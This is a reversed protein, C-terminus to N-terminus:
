NAIMADKIIIQPEFSEKFNDRKITCALELKFNNHNLLYEGLKTDICNFCIGRLNINFDNKFFILVHKDKLIKTHDIIIDNIIFQPEENGNGCPELKEINELLEKNVENISLKSDFYEIKNFISNDYDKFSKTLFAQFDFLLKKNIKLGAAMKHGGGNLLLGEHKALLIMSGIDINNISRASGVGISNNFSIAITPKYYKNILRSAIIGLVGNHWDNGSVLIFKQNYQQDAQIIAKEFISKEILKRKENLLILKRSISEIESIDSSILIKSPLRSDDIRSAANLQPGIIYALDNSTPANYLKSNDLIQTIANQNRQKILELGKSVFARNYNNLKVVDCVTGLAVLDLFSLLNPEKQPTLFFNQERLRKRLAMLFLFTVGVAAMENYTSSEDHRNPNIIAFVDPLLSESIHHDIVIIDMNKYKKDDLIGFSTTGCDLSFVLDIQENLFEDMIRKNPGYGETLRNPIKLSIKINFFSLFRFLIAAATSGDVDYDAVIGIKQNKNISKIARSVSNEMDILEFPNPMNNILDPKLYDDIQNNYIGRVVLLRSLNLSINNRQSITLIERENCNKIQWYNDLLSLTKYM